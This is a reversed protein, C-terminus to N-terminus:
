PLVFAGAMGPTITVGDVRFFITGGTAIAFSREGTQGISTPHVEAFYTSMAPAATSNCTAATVAVAGVDAAVNAAYGSKIAGNTALNSDIFGQTSGPPALALDDLSQAFGGRACTAAFAAQSTHITRISGIASSENAVLRARLLSPIAIAAVVALIAVVIMLEILTFGTSSGNHAARTM